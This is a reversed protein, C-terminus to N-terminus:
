KETKTSKIYEMFAKMFAIPKFKDRGEHPGIWALWSGDSRVSSTGTMHRDQEILWDEIMERQDANEKLDPKWDKVKVVFQTKYNRYVRSLLEHDEIEFGLVKTTAKRYEQIEKDNM